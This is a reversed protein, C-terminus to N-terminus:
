TARAQWRAWDLAASVERVVTLGPPPAPRDILVVRLGLARAADLKARGAAGGSDKAVLWRVGTLAFLATEEEVPFPPRGTVARWGEPLDAPPDISRLVVENGRLADYAPIDGRGVALFVRAGQPIVGALAEPGPVRTWDDGPGADWGARELRLCPVDCAACVRATRATIRAAFPHTADIVAGIGEGRLYAAFGADGGFGGTRTPLAQDAPSAVAGALSM